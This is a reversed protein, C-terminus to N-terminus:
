LTIQWNNIRNFINDPTIHLMCHHHKLPCEREFCPQCPLESKVIEAHESMPPTFHPSTSGYIAILPKNLAAAIHMLGSDNSVVGTALSLLAISQALSTKGVLNVCVHKTADMIVDAIAGDKPSGLLWVAWGARHMKNALAAFYTPPWRKSPGFEAGPCLALIPKQEVTLNFQALVATQEAQSVNFSPVPYPKKLAQNAPYGLALYQEIMLPYRQKNLHRGDNLLLQRGERIWGTRKPISAFFPILASKFSNPLVIAQTYHREALKKALRYRERLKLEGHAIPMEISRSVEPMRSSLSTTWAPALVEILCHPQQQKLWKFLTQAMVMDGVWSPGIVLMRDQPKAINNSVM